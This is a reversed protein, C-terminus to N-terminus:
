RKKKGQKSKADRKDKNKKDLKTGKKSKKDNKTAAKHKKGVMTKGDKAHTEGVTINVTVTPSDVDPKAGKDKKRGDRGKKDKKKSKKSPEDGAYPVPLARVVALNGTTAPTSPIPRSASTAGARAVVPEPTPQLGTRETADSSVSEPRPESTLPESTAPGPTVRDAAAAEPIAPERAPVATEEPEPESEAEPAQAQAAAIQAAETLLRIAEGRTPIGLFEKLHEEREASSFLVRAPSPGPATTAAPAAPAPHPPSIVPDVVTDTVPVFLDELEALVVEPTIAEVPSPEPPPSGATVVTAAIADEPAEPATAPTIDASGAAAGQAILTAVDPGRMSALLAATVFPVALMIVALVAAVIIDTSTFVLAPQDPLLASTAPPDPLLWPLAFWLGVGALVIGAAQALWHAIAVSGSIRGGLLAAGTVAPSFHIRRLPGTDYAWGLLVLVLLLVLTDPWSGLGALELGTFSAVTAVAACVATFVLLASGVVEFAVRRADTSAIVEFGWTYDCWFCPGWTDGEPLVCPEM